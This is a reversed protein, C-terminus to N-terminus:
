AIEQFPIRLSWVGGSSLSHGLDGGAVVFQMAVEDVGSNSLSLSQPVALVARAAAAEAGSPFVLTFEGRRLGTPRLTIDPDARGLITHVISRAEANADWEQMSGTITGGAHTITTSM